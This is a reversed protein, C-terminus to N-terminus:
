VPNYGGGHGSWEVGLSHDHWHPLASMPSAAIGAPNATELMNHHHHYNHHDDCSFFTENTLSLNSGM